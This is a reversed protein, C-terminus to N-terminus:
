SGSGKTGIIYRLRPEANRDIRCVISLRECPHCWTGPEVRVSSVTPSVLRYPENLRFIVVDNSSYFWRIMTRLQLWLCLYFARFLWPSECRRRSSVTICVRRSAKSEPRSFTYRGCRQSVFLRENALPKDFRRTENQCFSGFSLLSNSANSEISRGILERFLCFM